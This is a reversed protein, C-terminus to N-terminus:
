MSVMLMHKTSSTSSSPYDWCMLQGWSLSRWHPIAQEQYKSPPLFYRSRLVLGFALRVNCLHYLFKAPSAVPGLCPVFTFLHQIPSTPYPAPVVRHIKYEISMCTESRGTIDPCPIPYSDTRGTEDRGKLTVHDRILGHSKAM